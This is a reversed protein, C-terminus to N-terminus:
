QNAASPKRITLLEILVDVQNISIRPADGEEKEPSLTAVVTQLDNILHDSKNRCYGILRTARFSLLKNSLGSICNRTVIELLQIMTNPNVQTLLETGMGAYFDIKDSKNGPDFDSFNRKAYHATVKNVIVFRRDNQSDDAIVKLLMEFFCQVEASSRNIKSREVNKKALIIDTFYIVIQNGVRLCVDCIEEPNLSYMLVPNITDSSMM